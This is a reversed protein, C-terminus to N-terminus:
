GSRRPAGRHDSPPPKTVFPFFLLAEVRTGADDRRGAEPGRLVGAHQAHPLHVDPPRVPRPPACKNGRRPPSACRGKMSRLRAQSIYEYKDGPEISPQQGVVGQGSVQQRNGDEDDIIWKRALVTVPAETENIISVHYAFCYDETEPSSAQEVLYSRVRVRVGATVCDSKTETAMGELLSLKNNVYALASLGSSLRELGDAGGAAGPRDFAARIHARVAAGGDARFSSLARELGARGEREPAGGEGDDPAMLAIRQRDRENLCDAAGGHRAAQASLRHLARLFGAYLALTARRPVAM